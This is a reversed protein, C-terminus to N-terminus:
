SRTGVGFSEREEEIPVRGGFSDQKRVERGRYVFAFCGPGRTVLEALAHCSQEGFAERRIGGDDRLCVPLDDEESSGHRLRKAREHFGNVAAPPRIDPNLKQLRLSPDCRL